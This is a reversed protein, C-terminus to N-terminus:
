GSTEGQLKYTITERLNIAALTYSIFIVLEGEDQSINVDLTKSDVEGQLANALSSILQKHLINKLASKNPEFVFRRIGFGFEPRFVREKTNTFLVQEIIQRVHDSRRATLPGNKKDVVFPFNLFETASLNPM